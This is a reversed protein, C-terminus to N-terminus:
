QQYTLREPRAVVATAIDAALGAVKAIGAVNLLHSDDSPKHYDDHIGTFLHVVPAGASYFSSHDSPGYGDGGLSCIVRRTDCLGQILEKWEPASDSGLVSVTNQRMRGVMDMNI